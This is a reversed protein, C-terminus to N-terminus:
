NRLWDDEDDDAVDGDGNEDWWRQGLHNIRLMGDGAQATGATPTAQLLFSEAGPTGAFAIDYYDFNDDTASIDPAAATGSGCDMHTGPNYCGAETYIREMFQALSMLEAQIEARRAKAIQNTYTPYAIAALIAVVAVTILLEVLTFGRQANRFVPKLHWAKPYRRM